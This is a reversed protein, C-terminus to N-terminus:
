RCPPCIGQVPRSQSSLILGSPLYLHADVFDGHLSVLLIYVDLGQMTFGSGPPVWGLTVQATSGVPIVIPLSNCVTSQVTGGCQLPLGPGLTWGISGTTPTGGIYVAQLTVPIAGTNLVSITVQGACTGTQSGTIRNNGAACWGDRGWSVGGNITNGSVAVAGDGDIDLSGATNGTVQAFTDDEAELGGVVTNGTITSAQNVEFEATGQVTTGTMSVVARDGVYLNGSITGEVINVVKVSYLGVGGGVSSSLISVQLSFNGNVTGTVTTKNITLSAGSSVYVNGTVQASIVCAGNAPVLVNGVYMANVPSSSSCVSNPSWPGPSTRVVEDQVQTTFVYDGQTTKFSELYRSHSNDGGLNQSLAGGAWVYILSSMIIVILIM